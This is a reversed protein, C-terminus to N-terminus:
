HRDGRSLRLRFGNMKQVLWDRLRMVGARQYVMWELMLILLAPVALWRWWESRALQNENSSGASESVLDGLSGAPKLDSEQPSYLNVAFEAQQDGDLTVRYYGIQRTDSITLRKEVTSVQERSGDPRIVVAERIGEPLEVIEGPHISGPLGSQVGPTLWDVINAVLVPFAVNLPLDSHAFSFSQVVMRRGGPEGRFLLPISSGALDGVMVPQAWDPLEMRNADLLHIGATSVDKVLADQPDVLRLAPDGATGSVNFFETKRPPAIFWISGSDPIEDPLVGDYITLDVAQSSTPDDLNIEILEIGPLLHLATSLFLNGSSILAVKRNKVSRVMTAALDDLALIDSGELRAEVRQVGQPLDPLVVAQQGGAPISLDYMNVLQDDAYIGMRREVAQDAYNSAQAFVNWGGGASAEVNLLSVAQNDGSIGVPLYNLKGKLVLHEPLLSRGDSLVVIQTDTERSAIASALELAMGLDAAGNGTQIADIAEIVQRRDQSSTVRVQTEFGAEIVTVRADAPLDSVIQQARQRAAELRNPNVDVASMSASSDLIIIVAQGSVGERWTFPRAVAFILAALFLLQLLLLWNFRLRQWPASAERDQVMKRWLYLSSITHEMRRLKLLYLATVVVLLGSLGFAAPVLFNM